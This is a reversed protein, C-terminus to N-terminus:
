RQQRNRRNIWWNAMSEIALNGVVVFGFAVTVFVALAVGVKFAFSGMPRAALAGLGIAIADILLVAWALQGLERRTDIWSGRRHLRAM